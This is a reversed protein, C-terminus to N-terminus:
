NNEILHLQHSIKRRHDHSTSSNRTIHRLYDLSVINIDGVHCRILSHIVVDFGLLALKMFSLLLVNLINRTVM